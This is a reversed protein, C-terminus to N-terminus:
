DDNRNIDKVEYYSSKTQKPALVQKDIKSKVIREYAAKQEDVSLKLNELSTTLDQKNTVAASDNPNKTLRKNMEALSKEGAKIKKELTKQQKAIKELNRDVFLDEVIERDNEWNRYTKEASFANLRVVYTSPLKDKNNQQENDTHGQDTDADTLQSEISRDIESDSLTRGSNLEDSGVLQEKDMIMVKFAKNKFGDKKYITLVGSGDTGFMGYTLKAQDMPNDKTGLVFLKYNDGFASLQQHAADDYKIEVALTKEDTSLVTNGLTLTGETQKNRKILPEGQAMSAALVEQKYAASNHHVMLLGSALFVGGIVLLVPMIYFLRVDRPLKYKQKNKQRKRKKEQLGKDGIRQKKGFLKM